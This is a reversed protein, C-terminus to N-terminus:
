NGDAAVRSRDLVVPEGPRWPRTSQPEGNLSVEVGQLSDLILTFHDNAGWYAAYGGRVAYVEGHQLNYAPLPAPRERWIVPVASPQGDRRVSCNAAAPLLVRLVLAFSEGGQFRLNRDGRVASPLDAPEVAAPAGVPGAASPEDAEGVLSSAGPETAAPQADQLQQSDAAPPPVDLAAAPNSPAAPQGGGTSRLVLFWLVALVVAVAGVGLAIYRLWPVGVRTVTVQDENWVMGGAATKGAAPPGAVREYLQLVAGADLGLWTAYSRLFSKAYLSESLQHYEDRELADLLRLPIKTEAHAADLDCGRALRAERLMQGPSQAPIEQAM